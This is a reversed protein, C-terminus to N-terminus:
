ERSTRFAEAQPLSEALADAGQSRLKKFRQLLAVLNEIRADASHILRVLDALAGIEDGRAAMERLREINTRHEGILEATLALLKNVHM